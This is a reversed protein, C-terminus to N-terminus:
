VSHLHLYITHIFTYMETLMTVVNTINVLSFRMNRSESRSTFPSSSTQVDFRYQDGLNSLKRTVDRLSMKRKTDRLEHYCVFLIHMHLHVGNSLTHATNLVRPESSVPFPVSQGLVRTRHRILILLISTNFHNNKRQRCHEPMTRLARTIHYLARIKQTAQLM